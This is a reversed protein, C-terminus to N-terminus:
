KWLDNIKMYLDNIKMRQPKETNQVYKSTKLYM